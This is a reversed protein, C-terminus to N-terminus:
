FEIDDLFLISLSNILIPYEMSVICKLLLGFFFIIIYSWNHVISYFYLSILEYFYEGATELYRFTVVCKTIIPM